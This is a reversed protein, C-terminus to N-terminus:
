HYYYCYYNKIKVNLDFRFNNKLISLIKKFFINIKKYIINIIIFINNNKNFIIINKMNISKIIIFIVINKICIIINLFRFDLFRTVHHQIVCYGLSNPGFFMFRLLLGM